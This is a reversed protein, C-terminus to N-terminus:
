EGGAHLRWTRGVTNVRVNFIRLTEPHNPELECAELQFDTARRHDVVVGVCVWHRDKGDVISRPFDLWTDGGGTSEAVCAIFRSCTLHAGSCPVVIFVGVGIRVFM